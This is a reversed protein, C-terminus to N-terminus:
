IERAETLGRAALHRLARAVLEEVSASGSDLSLADPALALPSHTRQSDIADRRLIADTEGQLQRREARVTADADLFFKYPTQPFVVTGIDRGEM